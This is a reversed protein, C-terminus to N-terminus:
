GTQRRNRRLARRFDGSCDIDKLISPTRVPVELVDDAHRLLLQRLGIGPDLDMIERKYKLDILVPHGRRRLHVPLVIGKGSREFGALLREVVSSPIGPQDGLVVLAARAEAPLANLGNQISSLMGREFDPNFVPMVPYAKLRRGIENRSAGLVVVIGEVPSKLVRAVVKEIMTKRGFPLLMKPSGMRESKGAALVVAWIM